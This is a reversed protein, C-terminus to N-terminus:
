KESVLKNSCDALTKRIIDTNKKISDKDIQILQKKQSIVFQKEINSIANKVLDIENQFLLGDLSDLANNVKLLFMHFKDKVFQRFSDNKCIADFNKTINLEVNLEPTYRKGLNEINIEVQENFWESILINSINKEEFIIKDGLINDGTGSHIQVVSKSEDNM